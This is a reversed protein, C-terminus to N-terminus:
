AIVVDNDVYYHIGYPFKKLFVVKINKYKAQFNEPHKKIQNLSITLEKEFVESLKVEIKHYWIFADEIDLLAEDNLLLKFSM